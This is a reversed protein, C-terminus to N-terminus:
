ARARRSRRRHRHHDDAAGAGRRRAVRRGGGLGHAEEGPGWLVLSGLGRRERIAAALAGFRDPRGDSTRGRRALTSSRMARQIRVAGCGRGGREVAARRDSVRHVVDSGGLARVLAIGKQIVHPADGPDPTESYFFRALPERLHARPFGIVRNAGIMRSLAASKLLGQLDIAAEYGVRRLTRIM